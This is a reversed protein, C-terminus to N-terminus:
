NRKRRWEVKRMNAKRGSDRGLDRKEVEKREKRSDERTKEKYRREPNEVEVDNRSEM